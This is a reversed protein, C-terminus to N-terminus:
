KTNSELGANLQSKLLKDLSRKTALVSQGTDFVVKVADQNFEEIWLIRNENVQQLDAIRSM